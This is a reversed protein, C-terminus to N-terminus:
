GLLRLRRGESGRGELLVSCEKRPNITQFLLLITAVCVSRSLVLYCMGIIKRKNSVKIKKNIQKVKILNSEKM